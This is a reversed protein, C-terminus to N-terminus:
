LVKELEQAIALIKDEEFYNGIIQLGVPLKGIVGVPLSLGPVGALNLSITYIDALYMSLPDSTKEGIKFAPFPSVPCFILDLKEFAKAFDQRILQRVEQAKKYYADYYGASL